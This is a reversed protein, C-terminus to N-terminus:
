GTPAGGAAVWKGDRRGLTLTHSAGGHEAHFVARDEDTGPEDLVEVLVLRQPEVGRQEAFIRRAAAELAERDWGRDAAAATALDRNAKELSAAFAGGTRALQGRRALAGGVALILLVLLVIILWTPM